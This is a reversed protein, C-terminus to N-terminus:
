RGAPAKVANIFAVTDLTMPRIETCLKRARDFFEDFEGSERWAKMSELDQWPGITVFRQPFARERLLHVGMAGQRNRSTWEAFSRWAEVFEDEMGKKVDWIAMSFLSGGTTM